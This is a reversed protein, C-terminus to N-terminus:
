GVHATSDTNVLAALREAHKKTESLEAKLRGIEEAQQLLLKDKEAILTMLAPAANKELDMKEEQEVKAVRQAMVEDDDEFNYPHATQVEDSDILRPLISSPRFMSDGRGTLLWEPAVLYEESLESLMDVGVHMRGNMIESFKASKVGLAQAIEGQTTAIGTDMLAIVARIFRNDIAEKGLNPNESNMKESIM